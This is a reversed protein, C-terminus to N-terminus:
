IGGYISTVEVIVHGNLIGSTADYSFINDGGVLYLWESDLTMNNIINSKTGSRTLYVSKTGRRTDIEVYDGDALTIDLSFNENTTINYIAPNVIEGSAVIKIKVGVEEDSNNYIPIAINTDIESVPIGPTEEIAFEFKFRDLVNSFSYMHSDVDKFYPDGCRVVIQCGEQSDFISPDNKKVVGDIYVHRNDTKFVLRVSKKLRFYHYSRLRVDEITPDFLFVLNLTIDRVGLRASNFMGGDASAHESFNLDADGPGLGKINKIIFGSSNPNRLVMELEENKYNIVTVSEIM